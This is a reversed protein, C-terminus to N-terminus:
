LEFLETQGEAITSPKSKKGKGLKFVGRKVRILMGSNVMRSLINGIHFAGNAYYEHGYQEVVQKKTLDGGNAQCMAIIAKQQHTM